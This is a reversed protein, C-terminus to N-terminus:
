VEEKFMIFELVEGEFWKCTKSVLNMWGCPMCVWGETQDDAIVVDGVSGSKQKGSTYSFSAGGVPMGNTISFVQEINEAIVIFSLQFLEANVANVVRDLVEGVDCYLATIDMYAKAWECGAWGNANVETCQEKSLIPQYVYFTNM